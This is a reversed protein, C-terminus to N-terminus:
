SVMPANCGICYGPADMTCYFQVGQPGSPLAQVGTKCASLVQEEPNARVLVILEPRV